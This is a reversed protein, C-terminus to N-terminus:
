RDGEARKRSRATPHRHADLADLHKDFLDDAIPISKVYWGKWDGSKDGAVLVIARRKPDFAFLMRVGSRGSTGPRLEKMNKHRSGKVTDVLPRGLQPGRAQLLELAAIVRHYDDVSLSELWSRVRELEVDWM